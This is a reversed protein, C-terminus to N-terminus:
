RVAEATTGAGEIRIPNKDKLMHAGRVVLSEGATLGEVIEMEVGQRKGVTVLRHEALKGNSVYVEAKKTTETNPLLLVSDVPVMVVGERRDVEIRVKVASGALLKGETNALDIEVRGARTMRDVVPGRLTVKGEVVVDPDALPSIRVPMGQRVRLFAREPVQLVVRLADDRVITMLTQGAGALDGERLTLGTVVGNIPSRLITRQKQASSLAMGATAQRVQADSARAQAELSELQSATGSGGEVLTRTRRLNDMVADRNAVAAELAAQSQLVSQSQVDGAVTVLLDGEKVRDGEKVALKRITEPVQAFIRIEQAGELEGVVEVEDIATGLAVPAVSVTRVILEDKTASAAAEDKSCGSAILAGSVLLLPLRLRRTASSANLHRSM